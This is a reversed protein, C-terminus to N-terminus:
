QEIDIDSAFVEAGAFDNNNSKKERNLQDLKASEVSERLTIDYVSEVKKSQTNKM